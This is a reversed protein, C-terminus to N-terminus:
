LSTLEALSSNSLRTKFLLAQNIRTGVPYADNFFSGLNFKSMAGVSGSTDTFISTGNLYIGFDNAKYYVAIKNTGAVLNIGGSKIAQVSSSAIFEIVPGEFNYYIINASTGDSLSFAINAADVGANKQFELFITGETQGILATASTKIATEAGRTVAAGLTPIYSTAYAGAEIQAGWLYIGDVGNQVISGTANALPICRFWAVGATSTRTITIRRWGNGVDEITSTHAPGAESVVSIADLDFTTVPDDATWATLRVYQYGANKVYASWTYSIGNTIAITSTTRFDPIAVSGVIKDANTYGDPSTEVNPTVTINSKLWAANDLQESYLVLNTRQPELLLRPCSSNLYDLRPVNAVPGVSVAATTTAIYDTAIDGTELQFGYVLVDIALDKADLGINVSTSSTVQTYSYRTWTSTALITSVPAGQFQIYLEQNSGTNSKIWFSLNYPTANTLTALQRVFARDSVSGITALWRQANTGGTPDTFGTTIASTYTGVGGKTWAANDLQQSYTLLNTRVKEILGDPGVRTATDNSRSFSLDAAGDTPVACYVKSTKYGSPIMVVSADSYFSM